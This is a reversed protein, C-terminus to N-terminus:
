TKVSTPLLSEHYRKTLIIDAFPIDYLHFIKVETGFSEIISMAEKSLLYSYSPNKLSGYSFLVKPKRKESAVKNLKDAVLEVSHNPKSQKM